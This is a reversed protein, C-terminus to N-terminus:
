QKSNAADQNPLVPLALDPKVNAGSTGLSFLYSVAVSTSATLVGLAAAIAWALSDVSMGSDQQAAPRNSYGFAFLVIADILVFAIVPGKILLGVLGQSDDLTVDSQQKKDRFTYHVATALYGLFVPMVIEILRQVQDWSLPFGFLPALVSFGFLMVTAVLSSKVIFLRAATLTMGNTKSFSDSSMNDKM